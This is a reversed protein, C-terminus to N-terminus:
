AEVLQGKSLLSVQSDPAKDVTTGTSPQLSNLERDGGARDVSRSLPREASRVIRYPKAIRVDSHEEIGVIDAETLKQNNGHQQCCISECFTWYLYKSFIPAWVFLAVIQGFNWSSMDVVNYQQWIAFDRVYSGLLVIMIIELIFAILRVSAVLLSILAPSPQKKLPSWSRIRSREMLTKSWSRILTITDHRCLLTLVIIFAFPYVPFVADTVGTDISAEISFSALSPIDTPIGVKDLIGASCYAIPPPGPGCNPSSVFDPPMMFDIVSPNRMAVIINRLAIIVAGSSLVVMYLSAMDPLHLILLGFAAAAIGSKAVTLLIIKNAQLQVISYSELLILGESLVFATAIQTALIFFCQAEQFEVFMSRVVALHRTVPEELPLSLFREFRNYHFVIQAALRFHLLSRFLEM